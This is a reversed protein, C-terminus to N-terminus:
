GQHDNEYPMAGRKIGVNSYYLYHNLKSRNKDKYQLIDM